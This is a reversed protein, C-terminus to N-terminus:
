LGFWVLLVLLVLRQCLLFQMSGTNSVDFAVLSVGDVEGGERNLNRSAKVVAETYRSDSTVLRICGCMQLFLNRFM